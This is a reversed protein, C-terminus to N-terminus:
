LSSFLLKMKSTRRSLNYKPALSLVNSLHTSPTTSTVAAPNDVVNLDEPPLLKNLFETPKLPVLKQAYEPFIEVFACSSKDNLPESNINVSWDLKCCVYLM